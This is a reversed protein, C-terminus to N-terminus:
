RGPLLLALATLVGATALAEVHVRRAAQRVRLLVGLDEIREDGGDMNRLGQAALRM